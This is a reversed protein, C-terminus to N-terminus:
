YCRDTVTMRFHGLLSFIVEFTINAGGGGYFSIYPAYLKGYCDNFLLPIIIVTIISAMESFSLFLLM